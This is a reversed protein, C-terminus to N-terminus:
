IFILNKLRQFQNTRQFRIFSDTMLLIQCHSLEDFVKLIQENTSQDSNVIDQTKSKLVSSINIEFESGAAIYKMWLDHAIRRCVTDLDKSDSGPRLQLKEAMGYVIWSKPVSKPFSLTQNNSWLTETDLNLNDSHAVIYKEFQIFEILSLLCEVSVTYPPLM